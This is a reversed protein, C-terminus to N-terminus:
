IFSIFFVNANPALSTIGIPKICSNNPSNFPATAIAPTTPKIPIYM